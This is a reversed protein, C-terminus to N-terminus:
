GEKNETSATLLKYEYQASDISTPRSLYTYIDGNKMTVRIIDSTWHCVHGFPIRAVYEVDKIDKVNINIGCWHKLRWKSCSMLDKKECWKM